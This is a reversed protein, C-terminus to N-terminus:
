EQPFLLYNFLYIRLQSSIKIKQNSNIHFNIIDFAPVDTIIMNRRQEYRGISYM